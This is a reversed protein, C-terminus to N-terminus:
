RTFSYIILATNLLLIIPQLLSSFGAVKSTRVAQKNQAVYIIDNNQLMTRPDSLTNINSLDVDIVQQNKTGGRIIRLNKSNARDTLGGAEGIMEILPTRDKVLPYNGQTRVEGLVTVKLNVIKLEIIPNKLEKRYLTEVQKAADHRTLGAVQVHGIIPLAVTGDDEVLFTQGESSGAGAAASAITVPEDVIYKPNQLNKIQLLDGPKIRYSALATDPAATAGNFIQGKNEFLLQQQKYSCSYCSVLIFIYLIYTKKLSM